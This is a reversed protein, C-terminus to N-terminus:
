QAYARRRMLRARRVLQTCICTIITSHLAYLKTGDPSLNVASIQESGDSGSGVYTGADFVLWRVTVFCNCIAAQLHLICEIIPHHFSHKGEQRYDSLM